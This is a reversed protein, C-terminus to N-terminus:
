SACYLPSVVVCLSVNGIRGLFRNMQQNTGLLILSLFVHLSLAKYYNHTLRPWQKLFLPIPFIVLYHFGYNKKDGLKHRSAIDLNLSMELCLLYILENSCTTDVM